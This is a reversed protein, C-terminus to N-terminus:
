AALRQQIEDSENGDLVDQMEESFEDYCRMFEAFQHEDLVDVKTGAYLTRLEEYSATWKLQRPSGSMPRGLLNIQVLLERDTQPLHFFMARLQMQAALVIRMVSFDDEKCVWVSRPETPIGLGDFQETIYRALLVQESSGQQLM